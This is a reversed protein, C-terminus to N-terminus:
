EECDSTESLYDLFDDEAETLNKVELTGGPSLRGKLAVDGNGVTESFIRTPGKTTSQKKKAVKKDQMARAVGRKLGMLYSKYGVKQQLSPIVNGDDYETSVRRDRRASMLIPSGIDYDVNNTEQSELLSKTDHPYLTGRLPTSNFIDDVDNAHHTSTAAAVDDVRVDSKSTRKARPAPTGVLSFWKERCELASKGDVHEAIDDWFSSSIPNAESQRQKLQRLQIDNWERTVSAVDQSIKIDPLHVKKPSENANMDHDHVVVNNESSNEKEEVSHVTTTPKPKSKPPLGKRNDKKKNRLISKTTKPRLLGRRVRKDSGEQAAKAPKLQAEKMALSPSFRDTQVQQRSSRRKEPQIISGAPAMNNRRSFDWALLSAGPSICEIDLVQSGPKLRSSAQRAFSSKSPKIGNHAEEKSSVSQSASDCASGSGMSDAETNQDVTRKTWPKESKSEISIVPIAGASHFNKFGQGKSGLKPPTCRTNMRKCPKSEEIDVCSQASQFEIEPIEEATMFVSEEDTDNNAPTTLDILINPVVDASSSSARVNKRKTPVITQMLISPERQDQRGRRRSSGLAMPWGSNEISNTQQESTSKLDAHGRRASVKENWSSRSSKSSYSRPEPEVVMVSITSSPADVLVSSSDSTSAKGRRVVDKRSRRHRNSEAKKMGVTGLLSSVPM